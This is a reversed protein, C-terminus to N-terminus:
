PQRRRIVTPKAKAKPKPRSKPKPDPEARHAGGRDEDGHGGTIVTFKAPGGACVKGAAYERAEDLDSFEKKVLKGDPGDHTVQYTMKTSM